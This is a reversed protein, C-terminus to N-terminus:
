IRHNELILQGNLVKYRDGKYVFVVLNESRLSREKLKLLPQGAADHYATHEQDSLIDSQNIKM